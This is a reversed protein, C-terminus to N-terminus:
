SKTIANIRTELELQLEQMEKSDAEESGAGREGDQIEILKELTRSATALLGIQIDPSEMDVKELKILQKGFIRLMRNILDARDVKRARRSVWGELERQYRLQAATIKYTAYIVDLKLIDAAYDQRVAVWDVDERRTREVM